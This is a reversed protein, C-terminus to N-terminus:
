HLIFPPMYCLAWSLAPGEWDAREPNTLTMGGKLYYGCLLCLLRCNELTVAWVATSQVMVHLASLSRVLMRCSLYSSHETQWQLWPKPIKLSHSWHSWSPFSFVSLCLYTWSGAKTKSTLLFMQTYKQFDSDVQFADSAQDNRSHPTHWQLWTWLM